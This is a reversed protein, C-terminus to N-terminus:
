NRIPTQEPTKTIRELRPRNALGNVLLVASSILVCFALYFALGGIDLNRWLVFSAAFAYVLLLAGQTLASCILAVRYRGLFPLVLLLSIAFAVISFLIAKTLGSLRPIAIVSILFGQSLQFSQVILWIERPSYVREKRLVHVHPVLQVWFTTLPTACLAAILSEFAAGSFW